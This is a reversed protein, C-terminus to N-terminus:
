EVDMAGGGDASPGAGGMGRKQRKVAERHRKKYEKTLERKQENWLQTMQESHMFAANALGLLCASFLRVYETETQWFPEVDVEHKELGGVTIKSMWGDQLDETRALPRGTTGFFFPENSSSANFVANVDAAPVPAFSTLTSEVERVGPAAAEFPNAEDMELDSDLELDLGAM